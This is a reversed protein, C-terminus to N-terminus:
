HPQALTKALSRNVGCRCRSAHCCSRVIGDARDDEPRVLAQDPGEVIDDGLVGDAGQGMQTAPRLHPGHTFPNLRPQFVCPQLNHANIDDRSRDLRNRREDRLNLDVALRVAALGALPLGHLQM